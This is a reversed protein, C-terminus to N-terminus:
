DPEVSQHTEIAMDVLTTLEDLSDDLYEPAAQSRLATECENAVATIRPFGFNSATGRLRHVVTLLTELKGDERASQLQHRMDPLRAVFRELLPGFRSDSRQQNPAQPQFAPDM